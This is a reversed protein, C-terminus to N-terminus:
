GQLPAASEGAVLTPFPNQRSLVVVKHECSIYGRLLGTSILKAVWWTMESDTLALGDDVEDENRQRKPRRETTERAASDQDAIMKGERAINIYMTTLVRLPIRTSDEGCADMTAHVRAVLILFCLLKARQLIFYVGRRRLIPGYADVAISFARPDGRQIAKLIPQFIYVILDDRQQIEEPPMRGSVVGAVTLFFRVRQKNRHQVINGSGPPPLLQYAQQLAAFAERAQHDYLAVRGKYYYFTLVESTMHQAPKLVERGAAGGTETVREAQVITNILVRCQHVNYRRFLISLLGNCVALAGRRRSFEPSLGPDVVQLSQLLKRWSRVIRGTAEDIVGPSADRAACPIRHVFHLLLLTDWGVTGVTTNSQRHQYNTRRMSHVEQFVEFVHLLGLAFRDKTLQTIWQKREQRDDGGKSDDADKISYSETYYKVLAGTIAVRLVVEVFLQREKVDDAHGSPPVRTEGVAQEVSDLLRQRLQDIAPEIGSHEPMDRITLAEGMEAHVVFDTLLMGNRSAIGEAARQMWRPSVEFLPSQQAGKKAPMVEGLSVSIPLIRKKEM